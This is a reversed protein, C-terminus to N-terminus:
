SPVAIGVHEVLRAQSHLTRQVLDSPPLRFPADLVLVLVLVFCSCSARARLVFAGAANLHRPRM